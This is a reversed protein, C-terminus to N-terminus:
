IANFLRVLQWLAVTAFTLTGLLGFGLFARDLPSWDESGNRDMGAGDWVRKQSPAAVNM